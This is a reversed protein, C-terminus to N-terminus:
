VRAAYALKYLLVNRGVKKVPQDWQRDGISGLRLLAGRFLTLLGLSCLFPGLVLNKPRFDQHDERPSCALVLLLFGIALLLLDLVVDETRISRANLQDLQDVHFVLGTEEKEVLTHIIIELPEM